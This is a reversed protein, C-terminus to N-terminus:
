RCWTQFKNLIILKYYLIHTINNNTYKIKKTKLIKFYKILENIIEIILNNNKDNYVELAKVLGSSLTQEKM